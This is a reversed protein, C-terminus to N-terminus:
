RMRTSCNTCPGTRSCCAPASRNQLWARCQDVWGVLMPALGIALLAEVLALLSDPRVARVGAPDAAHRLQVGPVALDAGAAPLRGPRAAMKVARVVPTYLWDWWRDALQLNYKPAIDFPTPVLRRIRFFPGFIHRIPQGFGEATDQMRATQDPLRLGM